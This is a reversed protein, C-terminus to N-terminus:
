KQNYTPGKAHNITRLVKHEALEYYHGFRAQCSSCRFYFPKGNNIVKSQAPIIIQSIAEEHCSLDKSENATTLPTVSDDEQNALFKQQRLIAQAAYIKQKHQKSKEHQKWCKMDFRISADCLPCQVMKSTNTEFPQAKIRKITELQEEIEQAVKNSVNYKLRMMQKKSSPTRALESTYSPQSFIVSTILLLLYKM